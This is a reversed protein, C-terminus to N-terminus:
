SDDGLYDHVKGRKVTMEGVQGYEEKLSAIIDDVVSKVRKTLFSM